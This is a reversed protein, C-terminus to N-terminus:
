TVVKKGSIAGRVPLLVSPLNSSWDFLNLSITQKVKLLMEFLFTCDIQLLLMLNCHQVAKHKWFYATLYQVAKLSLYQLDYTFECYITNTTHCYRQKRCWSGGEKILLTSLMSRFYSWHFMLSNGITVIKEKKHKLRFRIKRVSDRIANRGFVVDQVLSNNPTRSLCNPHKEPEM